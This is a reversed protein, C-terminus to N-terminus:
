RRSGTGPRTHRGRWLELKLKDVGSHRRVVVSVVRLRLNGQFEPAGATCASRSPLPFFFQSPLFAAWPRIKLVVSKTELTGVASSHSQSGVEGYCVAVIDPDL